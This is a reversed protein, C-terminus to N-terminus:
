FVPKHKSRHWAIQLMTLMSKTNNMPNLGAFPEAIVPHCACAAYVMGFISGLSM